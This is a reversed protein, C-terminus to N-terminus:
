YGRAGGHSRPESAGVYLRSHVDMRIAQMRGYAAEFTPTVELDHGLTALRELTAAPFGDELTVRMDHAECHLRPADLAAQLGLGYDLVNILSMVTGTIIKRGGPASLALVPYGDEFVLTPGSNRLIRKGPAISLAHGPAPNAGSM